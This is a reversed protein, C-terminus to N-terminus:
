KGACMTHFPLYKNLCYLFTCNLVIRLGISSDLLMKNANM